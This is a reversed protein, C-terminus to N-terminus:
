KVYSNQSLMLLHKVSNKMIIKLLIFLTKKEFSKFNSFTASMIFVRNINNNYYNGYNFNVDYKIVPVENYVPHFRNIKYKTNTNCTPCCFFLNSSLYTFPKYWTKPILHEVNKEKQKEYPDMNDEFSDMARSCVPCLPLYYEKDHTYKKETSFKYHQKANEINRKEKSFENTWYQNYVDIGSKKYCLTEIENGFFFKDFKSKIKNANVNNFTFDWPICGNPDQYLKLCKKYNKEFHNINRNKYYNGNIYKIILIEDSKNIIFKAEKNLKYM